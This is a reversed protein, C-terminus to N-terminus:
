QTASRKKLGAYSNGIRKESESTMRFTKALEKGSPATPWRSGHDDVRTKESRRRKCRSLFHMTQQKILTAGLERADLMM